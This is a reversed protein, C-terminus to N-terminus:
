IRFVLGDLFEILFNSSGDLFMLLVILRILLAHKSTNESSFAEIM